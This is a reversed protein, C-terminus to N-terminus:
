QIDYGLNELFETEKEDFINDFDDIYVEVKRLGLDKIFDTIKIDLDKTNEFTFSPSMPPLDNHQDIITVTIQKM